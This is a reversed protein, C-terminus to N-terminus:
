KRDRSGTRSGIWHSCGTSDIWPRSPYHILLKLREEEGILARDLLNDSNFSILSDEEDM